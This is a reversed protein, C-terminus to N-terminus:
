LTAYLENNDQLEMVAQLNFGHGCIDKLHLFIMRGINEKAAITKCLVDNMAFAVYLAKNEAPLTLMTSLCCISLKGELMKLKV